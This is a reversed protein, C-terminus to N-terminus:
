RASSSSGTGIDVPEGAKLANVAETLDDSSVEGISRAVVQGSGDIFVFYPYSTLGYAQAATFTSSDAMTPYPWDEDELWASPPYNAQNSRTGTAVASVDVGDLKGDNALDVIRPVEAQCHPCWHALFIVIQPTGTPEITMDAGDFLSTGTLTPITEGIARDAGSEPFPPLATGTVSVPAVEVASGNGGGGSGSDDGGGAAVAVVVAVAVIVALIGVIVWTRNSSRQQPRRSM